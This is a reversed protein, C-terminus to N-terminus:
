LPLTTPGGHYPFRNKITVKLTLCTLTGLFAASGPASVMMGIVPDVTGELNDLCFM